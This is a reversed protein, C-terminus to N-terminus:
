KLQWFMPVWGCVAAGCVIARFLLLLLLLLFLRVGLKGALPLTIDVMHVKKTPKLQPKKLSPSFNSTLLHEASTKPLSKFEGTPHKLQVM